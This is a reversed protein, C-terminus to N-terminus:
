LQYLILCPNTRGATCISSGLIFASSYFLLLVFLLVMCHFAKPKFLHTNHIKHKTHAFIQLYSKTQNVQFLWDIALYGEFLCLSTQQVFIKKKKKKKVM